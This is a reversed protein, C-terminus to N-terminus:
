ERSTLNRMDLTQGENDELLVDNYHRQGRHHRATPPKYSILISARFPGESSLPPPAGHVVDGFHISVDGAQAGVAASGPLDSDAADAFPYSYRHSGPLFRLDGSEKSAPWLFISMVACPCNLAHGGMGCDRHWPLDGLGEVVGPQKWLVTVGDIEGPNSPELEEGALAAIRRIRADAYLGQMSPMQGANLVRCLVNEGSEHKGWWSQEDGIRARTQLQAAEKRLTALEAADFVDRVRIYGATRLFHIMDDSNDDLRFSRGPDLRSGDRNRLDIKAADYIPRGTYMARLCPEWGVFQMMDGRQGKALGGYLLGAPSELDHVLGEWSERSLAVVTDANEDGPLVDISTGRAVYTYAEDGDGDDGGDNLRFALSGLAKATGAALAGNGESLRLPLESRHFDNFDLVEFGQTM